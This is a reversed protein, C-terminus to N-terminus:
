LTQDLEKTPLLSLQAMFLHHVILKKIKLLLFVDISLMFMLFLYTKGIIKLSKSNKWVNSLVVGVENVCKTFELISHIDPIDFIRCYYHQYNLM